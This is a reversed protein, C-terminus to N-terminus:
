GKAFNFNLGISLLAKDQRFGEDFVNISRLIQLQIKLKKIGARLTLAPEVLLQTQNNRLYQPQNESSFILDGRINTYQLGVVRSSLSVSFYKSYLNLSPQIGARILNASIKGTTGPYEAASAPFENKMAGLGLLGYVDWMFWTEPNRFYGVGAELLGGSGDGDGNNNPMYWASNIQLAANRSLGYAGQLDFQHDNGAVSGNFQGKQTIMPVNQVNPVYYKPSCAQFLVFLLLFTIGPLSGSM